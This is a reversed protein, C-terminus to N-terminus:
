QAMRSRRIYIPHQCSPVQLEFVPGDERMEDGSECGHRGGRRKYPVSGRQYVRIAIVPQLGVSQNGNAHPQQQARRHSPPVQRIPQPPSPRHHRTPQHNKPPNRYTENSYNKNDRSSTPQVPALWSLPICSPLRIRALDVFLSRFNAKSVSPM